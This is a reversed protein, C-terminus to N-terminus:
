DMLSYFIWLIKLQNKEFFLGNYDILILLFFKITQVKGLLRDVPSSFNRFALSFSHFIPFQCSIM